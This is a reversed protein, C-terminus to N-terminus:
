KARGYKVAISFENETKEGMLSSNYKAVVKLNEGDDDIELKKTFAEVPIKGYPTLYEGSFAYKEKFELYNSFQGARKVTVFDKGVICIETKTVGNDDTDEYFLSVENQAKKMDGSYIKRFEVGGADSRFFIKVKEM